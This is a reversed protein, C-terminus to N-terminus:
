LLLRTSLQMPALKELIAVSVIVVCGLFKQGCGRSNQGYGMFKSRSGVIKVIIVIPFFTSCLKLHAMRAKEGDFIYTEQVDFSVSPTNM